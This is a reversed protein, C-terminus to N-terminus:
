CLAVVGAPISAHCRTSFQEHTGPQLEMNLMVPRVRVVVQLCWCCARPSRKPQAPCCRESVGRDGGVVAVRSM